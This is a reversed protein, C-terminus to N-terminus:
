ALSNGTLSLNWGLIRCDKGSQTSFYLSLARGMGRLKNKTTVVEFGNDYSDDEGDIFLQKHRAGAALYTMIGIKSNVDRWNYQTEYKVNGYMLALSTEILAVPPLLALNPKMAGVSDKPNKAKETM